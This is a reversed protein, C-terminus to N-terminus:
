SAYINVREEPVGYTAIYDSFRMRAVTFEIPKQNRWGIEETEDIWGELVDGLTDKDLIGIEGDPSTVIYVTVMHHADDLMRAIEDTTNMPFYSNGRKTYVDGSESHRYVPVSGDRVYGILDYNISM